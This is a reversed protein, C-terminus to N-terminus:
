SVVKGKLSYQEPNKLTYINTSGDGSMQGMLSAFTGEDFYQPHRDKHLTELEGSKM